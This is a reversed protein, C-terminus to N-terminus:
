SQRWFPGCIELPQVFFDLRTRQPRRKFVWVKPGCRPCPSKNQAQFAQHCRRCQVYFNQVKWGVERKRGWLSRRKTNSSYSRRILVFSMEQCYNGIGVKDLLLFPFLWISMFLPVPYYTCLPLYFCSTEIKIKKKKKLKKIKMIPTSCSSSM